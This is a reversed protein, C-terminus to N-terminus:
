SSSTSSFSAFASNTPSEKNEITQYEVPDYFGPSYARSTSPIPIVPSRQIQIPMQPTPQQINLISNAKGITRIEDEITWISTELTKAATRNNFVLDLVIWSFIFLPVVIFPLSLFAILSSAIFMFGVIGDTNDPIINLFDKLRPYYECSTKYQKLAQILANIKELAYDKEKGQQQILQDLQQICKLWNKVLETRFGKLKKIKSLDFQTEAENPGNLQKIEALEASLLTATDNSFKILM